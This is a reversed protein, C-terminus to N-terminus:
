KALDRNRSTSCFVEQKGHFQNFQLFTERAACSELFSSIDDWDEASMNHTGDNLHRAVRCEWTPQPLVASRFLPLYQPGINSIDEVPRANMCIAMAIDYQKLPVAAPTLSILTSTGPNSAALPASKTKM